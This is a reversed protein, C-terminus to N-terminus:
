RKRREVGLRRANPYFGGKIKRFQTEVGDIQVDAMLRNGRGSSYQLSGIREMEVGNVDFSLEFNCSRQDRAKKLTVAFADQGPEAM